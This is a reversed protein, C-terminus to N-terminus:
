NVGAMDVLRLFSVHAQNEGHKAEAVDMAYAFLNQILVDVIVSRARTLRLGSDGKQHYRHLMEKELRMFEKIQEIREQDSQGSHFTLRLEAHQRTRRFLPDDEM